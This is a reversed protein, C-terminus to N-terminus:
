TNLGRELGLGSKIPVNFDSNLCEQECLWEGRWGVWGKAGPVRRETECDTNARICVHTRNARCDHSKPMPNVPHEGTALEELKGM